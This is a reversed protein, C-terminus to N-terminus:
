AGEGGDADRWESGDLEPKSFDLLAQWHNDIDAGYLQGAIAQALWQAGISVAPIDGSVKGLSLSAAYNFAHLNGLAPCEGPHRETMAFGDGLWPFAGLGASELEAPPTYRDRWRAISPELDTLEARAAIDVNFGTAAIVYDAEFRQGNVTELHIRDGQQTVSALGANFYFYANDHRSVRLTSGHPPPTQTAASYYMIRWRWAASLRPFGHTFGPSGIGMLKNITPMSPRRALLRVEAAGHELAEAANDMAASGMGVVVVRKGKLAAFDIADASHAWYRRDLQAICEPISPTGLGDRGTAFVVKRALLQERHGDSRELTLRLLEGEAAVRTIRTDFEVELKLVQRYWELYQQWQPRPIKELAQWADDGFQARFWAQFTLAPIDCAPGLLHKPSRLTEMRAYDIWPGAKGCPAQDFIRLDDIGLRKLSFAAALGCQGAGVIAVSLVREGASTVYEPLWAAPPFNLLSLERALQAELESLSAPPLPATADSM